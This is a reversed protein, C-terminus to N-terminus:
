RWNQSNAPTFIAITNGELPFKNEMRESRIMHTHMHEAAPIACYIFAIRRQCNLHDPFFHVTVSAIAICLKYWKCWVNNDVFAIWIIIQIKLARLHEPMVSTSSFAGRCLMSDVKKRSM